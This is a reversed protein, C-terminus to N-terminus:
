KLKLVNQWNDKISYIKEVLNIWEDVASKEKNHEEVTDEEMQIMAMMFSMVRDFNGNRNYKLLEQLLGVSYIFEYNYHAVDNEDYDRVELLWDKIYKEGADKINKSMHVGYKRAVKSHKVASTIVDEPQVALRNLKKKKSFYNKVHTVENEYMVMTNYLEAFMLAIKNADDAELPRGVYEAAIQNKTGQNNYDITKIVYISALSPGSSQDQRYPDYGIKYVGFPTNPTPYEYIIPVGDLNDAKQNYFYLPTVDRLKTIPKAVVKGENYMLTVPQGLKVHLDEAIVKKLQTELEPINFIGKSGVGFADLPTLPNEIAYLALGSPNVKLKERKKVESEIAEDILSNGQEDYYGQKNMFVPHFYSCLTDELGEDWINEFPLIDYIDPSYFLEQFPETMQEKNSSTGYMLMMGTRIDGDKVTDVTAARAEIANPFTGMEELIVLDADKGRGADPNDQYTVGVISSLWGKPVNNGTSTDYYGSKILMKTPRDVIRNKRFGTHSDAFSLAAFAKSFTDESYKKDFSGILVNSARYNHYLNASIAGSKFSFGKRRSKLVLMDRGGDLFEKRIKVYLQLDLYDEYSIGNRAIELAWFFNYDGDWFDPFRIIKRKENKAIARIKQFNLYFYHHGTICAGGVCYGEICRRRQEKWYNEWPLTGWPHPTYYGYKDFHIAEERFVSSNIWIGDKNRVANNM